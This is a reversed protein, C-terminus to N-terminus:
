TRKALLHIIGAELLECPDGGRKIACTGVAQNVVVVPKGCTLFGSHNIINNFLGGKRFLHDENLISTLRVYFPDNTKM